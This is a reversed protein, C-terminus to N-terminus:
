EGNIRATKIVPWWKAIEAKQLQTVADPTHLEPDPVAQGQSSLRERLKPDSLADIAASNLRAIVAAPTGKPVWLGYWVSVHLGSLGVEDVTPIEPAVELRKESTVAFAKIRGDRVHPLSNAAQDLMVDIQGAILDQLAPGAGRYPVM